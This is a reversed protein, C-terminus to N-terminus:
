VKFFEERVAYISVNTSDSANMSRYMRMRKMIIYLFRFMLKFVSADYVSLIKV